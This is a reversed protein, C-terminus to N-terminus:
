PTNTVSSKQVVLADFCLSEGIIIQAIDLRNKM